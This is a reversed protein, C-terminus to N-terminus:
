FCDLKNILNVEAANEDTAYDSTQTPMEPANDNVDLLILQIITQDGNRAPFSIMLM